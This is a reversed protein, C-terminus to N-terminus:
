AGLRLWYALVKPVEGVVWRIDNRRTWWRGPVAPDYRTGHFILEIGTGQLQRRCAISVRRLHYISSVVIVRKWGLKLAVERLTEAESATNDHIRDPVILASPPVGLELLMERNLEFRQPLSAGRTGAVLAAPEPTDRTVLIRPAYGAEYLDAAELPREAVTGALVFIADAKQLRQQPALWLGVNLFGYAGAALVVLLAIAVFRRFRGGPRPVRPPVPPPTM